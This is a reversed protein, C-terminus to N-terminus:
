EEDEQGDTDVGINNWERYSLFLKDPRDVKHASSIYRVYDEWNDLSYCWPVEVVSSNDTNAGGFVKQLTFHRASYRDRPPLKEKPIQGPPPAKYLKTGQKRIVRRFKVFDDKDFTFGLKEGDKITKGEYSLYFGRSSSISKRHERVMEPDYVSYPFSVYYRAPVLWKSMKVSIKFITLAAYIISWGFWDVKDRHKPHIPVYFIPIPKRTSKPYTDLVRLCVPDQVMEGIRHRIIPSIDDNCVIWITECGAWACEMVSREVATLGSSIPMLCDPWEFNFSFDNKHVPIIGALHFTTM